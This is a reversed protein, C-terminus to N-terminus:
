KLRSIFDSDFGISWDLIAPNMPPFGGSNKYFSEYDLCQKHSRKGEHVVSKDDFLYIGCVHVFCVEHASNSKTYEKIFQKADLFKEFRGVTEWDDQWRSHSLVEVWYNM